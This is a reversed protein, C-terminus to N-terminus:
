RTVNERFMPKLFIFVIKQRPISINSIRTHFNTQFKQLRLEYCGSFYYRYKEVVAFEFYYDRIISM